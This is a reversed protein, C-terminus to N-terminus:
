QVMHFPLVLDNQRLQGQLDIEQRSEVMRVSNLIDKASPPPEAALLFTAFLFWVLSALHRIVFSSHRFLNSHGFSSHALVEYRSKRAEPKTMGEVNSMRAEDNSYEDNYRM